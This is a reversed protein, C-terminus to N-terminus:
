WPRTRRKPHRRPELHAIGTQGRHRRAPSLNISGDLARGNVALIADGEAADVGSGGAPRSSLSEVPRRSLNTRDSISQEAGQLGRRAIRGGGANPTSMAAASAITAVQLEGIMEVLLENLDERRQVFQLLPEYRARVAKWDLGHMKPDYFYQQEMRWTEDFIQHWEERADVV